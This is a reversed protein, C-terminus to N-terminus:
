VCSDNNMEINNGLVSNMADSDNFIGFSSVINKSNMSASNM